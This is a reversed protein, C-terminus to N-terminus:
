NKDIIKEIHEFLEHKNYPKQIFGCAGANITQEIELNLAYGSSIIAKVEPNIKKLELFTQKGDRNPMIMDIIVIDIEHWQEKYIRIGEDGSFATHAIIEPSSIIEKITLAVLQEDDIILINLKKGDWYKIKQLLESEHPKATVPFYLSFTTGHGEASKVEIAGKHSKVIGYTAALGMGTGKGEEKTTFFPEFLHNLVDDNMGSGTDTVEISIYTGKHLKFNRNENFSNDIEKTATTFSLRGGNPMADRANLALNLIANQVQNPGGWIYYKSANLDADITINKNITHSLLSIVEKIIQHVNVTEMKYVDKRAFALLQKTLGAARKSATQIQTLYNTLREDSSVNRNLIEAYGMIISLQNNFDHAIGGALQGIIEMKEIQRLRANSKELQTTRQEVIVELHKKYDNLQTEANKRESIELNLRRTMAGFTGIVFAFVLQAGFGMFPEISLLQYKGPDSANIYFSTTLFNLFSISIGAIRGFRWAIYAVPVVSILTLVPKKLLTYLIIFVIFYLIATLAIYILPRFRDLTFFKKM